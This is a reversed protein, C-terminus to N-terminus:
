DNEKGGNTKKNFNDIWQELILWDEKFMRITILDGIISSTEGVPNKFKYLLEKLEDISIYKKDLYYHNPIGICKPSIEIANITDGMGDKIIQLTTKVGM